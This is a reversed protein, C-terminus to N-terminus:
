ARPKPEYKCYRFTYMGWDQENGDKMWKVGNAYEDLNVELRGIERFGAKYFLPYGAMSAYVWAYCQHEDCMDTGFKLLASGVGKRQEVRDVSIGFIYMNKGGYPNLKLQWEKMSDSGIKKLVDIPKHDAPLPKPRWEETRPDEKGEALAPKSGDFNWKGWGCAGLIKGSETDVAKIIIAREPADILDAWWDQSMEVTGMPLGDAQAKVLTHTDTTFAQTFIESFRPIDEKLAPVLTFTM